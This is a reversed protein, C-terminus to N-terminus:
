MKITEGNDFLYIYSELVPKGIIKELAIAYYKIQARYREAIERSDNIIKDTKYDLLIINGCEDEFYADIVGQVIIEDDGPIDPYIEAAKMMYKFSFERYLRSYNTKVREGLPSQVFAAIDEADVAALEADSIAGSNRLKELM